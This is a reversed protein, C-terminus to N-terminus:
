NRWVLTLMHRSFAEVQELVSETSNISAARSKTQEPHYAIPRDMSIYYDELTYSSTVTNACIITIEFSLKHLPIHNKPDPWQGCPSYSWHKTQSYSWKLQVHQTNCWCSDIDRIDHLTLWERCSSHGKEGTESKSGDLRAPEGFLLISVSCM